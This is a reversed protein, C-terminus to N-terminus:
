EAVGIVRYGAQRVVDRYAAQDIPGKSLVHATRTGLDVRAWAGEVSDLANTVNRVCNDCHMGSITLDAHYPYHSEDTDEITVPRFSRGTQRADGSCCDRKGTATGVIRRVGFVVLVAVIAVIIVNALM